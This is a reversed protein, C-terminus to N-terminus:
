MQISKLLEAPIVAMDSNDFPQQLKEDQNREFRYKGLSLISETKSM